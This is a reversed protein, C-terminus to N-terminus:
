GEESAMHELGRVVKTARWQVRGLNKLGGRSSPSFKTQPDCVLNPRIYSLTFNAQKHHSSV